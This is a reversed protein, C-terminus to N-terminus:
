KRGPCANRFRWWCRCATGTRRPSGDSWRLSCWALSGACYQGLPPACSRKASNGAPAQVRRCSSASSWVRLWVWRTRSPPRPRPPSPRRRSAWSRSRRKLRRAIAPRFSSRAPASSGGRAVLGFQLPDWLWLGYCNATSISGAIKMADVLVHVADYVYPSYVQFQKPFKPYSRFILINFIKNTWIFFILIINSIDNCIAVM